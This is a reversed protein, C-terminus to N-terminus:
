PLEGSGVLFYQCLGFCPHHQPLFPQRYCTVRSHSVCGEEGEPKCGRYVEGRMWKRLMSRLIDCVIQVSAFFVCSVPPTNAQGPGRRGKGRWVSEIEPGSQLLKHMPYDAAPLMRPFFLFFSNFETKCRSCFCKKYVYDTGLMVWSYIKVLFSLEPQTFLVGIDQSFWFFLLYNGRKLCSTIM